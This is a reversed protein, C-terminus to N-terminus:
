PISEALRIVDEKTITASTAVLMFTRGTNEWIMWAGKTDDKTPGWRSPNWKRVSGSLDSLWAAGRFFVAPQDNIAIVQPENEPGVTVFTAVTCDSRYDHLPGNSDYLLGNPCSGERVELQITEGSNDKWQFLASSPPTEIISGYYLAAREQLVYDAPVWTPLKAFFPYNTSIDQPSLPTWVESYSESEQGKAPTPLLEDRVLVTVGRVTIKEIINEVVTLAAARVTPSVTLILAFTLCLIALVFAIRKSTSRRSIFTGTKADQVLKTYLTQNFDPRPSQRFKSFFDDNM